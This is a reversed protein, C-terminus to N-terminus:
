FQLSSIYESTFLFPFSFLLQYLVTPLLFGGIFAAISYIISQWMKNIQTILNLEYLYQIATKYTYENKLHELLTEDWVEAVVENTQRNIIIHSHKM